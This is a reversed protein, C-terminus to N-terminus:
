AVALSFESPQLFAPRAGDLVYNANRTANRIKAEIHIEIEIREKTATIQIKLKVLHRLAERPVKFIKSANLVEVGVPEGKENLDFIFNGMQQSSAYERKDPRMHVIDDEYHYRYTGASTQMKM